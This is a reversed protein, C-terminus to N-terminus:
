RKLPRDINDNTADAIQEKQAHDEPIPSALVPEGGLPAAAQFSFAGKGDISNGTTWRAAARGDWLTVYYTVSKNAEGRAYRPDNM